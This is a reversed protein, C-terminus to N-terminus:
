PGSNRRAGSHVTTFLASQRHHRWQDGLRAPVLAKHRQLVGLHFNWHDRLHPLRRLVQARMRHSSRQQQGFPWVGWDRLGVPPKAGFRVVHFIFHFILLIFYFIFSSHSSLTSSLDFCVVLRMVCPHYSACLVSSGQALTTHRTLRETWLCDVKRSEIAMPKGTEDLTCLIRKGQDYVKDRGATSYACGLLSDKHVLYGRTSAHNTLVIKCAATDIGFTITRQPPDLRDLQFSEIHKVYVLELTAFWRCVCASIRRSSSFDSFECRCHVLRRWALECHWNRRELITWAM